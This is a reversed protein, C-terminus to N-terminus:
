QLLFKERLFDGASDPSTSGNPARSVGAAHGHSGPHRGRARRWPTGAEAGPHCTWGLKQSPGGPPGMIWDGEWTHCRFTLGLLEWPFRNRGDRSRPGSVLELLEAWARDKRLSFPPFHGVDPLSPAGSVGGRTCPGGGTSYSASARGSDRM